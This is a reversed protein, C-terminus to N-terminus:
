GEAGVWTRDRDLRTRARAALLDKYAETLVAAHDTIVPVPAVRQSMEEWLGPTEVARRLANALSDPDARRFHIGNVGDTVKESMGGIDSCIVPRGYQFAELVV